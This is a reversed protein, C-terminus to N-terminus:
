KKLFFQLFNKKKKKKLDKLLVLIKLDQVVSNEFLYTCNPTPMSIITSERLILLM